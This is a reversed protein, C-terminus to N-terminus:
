LGCFPSEKLTQERTGGVMACGMQQKRVLVSTVFCVQRPYKGQRKENVDYPNCEKGSQSSM